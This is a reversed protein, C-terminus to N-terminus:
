FSNKFARATNLEERRIRVKKDVKLYLLKRLIRGIEVGSAVGIRKLDDGNIQLNVYCDKSLFKDIRRFVVERSTRVRLYVICTLTLPSLLQYVQSAFCEKASLSKIIDEYSQCELISTIEERCLGLKALAGKRVCSPAVEILGIFYILWWSDFEKYVTKRKAKQIRAHIDSLTRFNGVIKFPLFKLGEVRRLRRLCSLPDSENLIKKFENFLRTGTVTEFGGSKIVERMQLFTKREICFHFRQEFRVARLIRTPDDVFSQAHLIRIKREALDKLGGVDDILRGFSNHNIAIAMANITFDRRKLDESLSGRSVVPLIGPRSYCEKRTSAFDVHGGKKHHVIATGFKKHVIVDSKWKRGLMKALPIADGEVSIDLDFTKKRLLIDRVIGGVIYVSIKQQDAARSVDRILRLHADDLNQLYNKKM